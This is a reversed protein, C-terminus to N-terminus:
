TQLSRLRGSNGYITEKLDGRLYADPVDTQGIEFDFYIAFALLMRLSGLRLNRSWMGLVKRRQSMLDEAPMFTDM